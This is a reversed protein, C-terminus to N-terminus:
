KVGNGKANQVTFGEIVAHNATVLLGEAEGTQKDFALITKGAGAGRVTVDAVDLSLGGTFEFRGAGLRVVDGPKADILATQVREQANPGAAVDLTRAQAAGALVLLSAAIL